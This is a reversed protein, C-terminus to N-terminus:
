RKRVGSELPQSDEIGEPLDHQNAWAMVRRTIDAAQRTHVPPLPQGLAMGLDVGLRRQIIDASALSIERNPLRALDKLTSLAANAAPHGTHEALLAEVAILRLPAPNSALLMQELLPMDLEQHNQLLRGLEIR